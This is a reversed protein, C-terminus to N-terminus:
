LVHLGGLELGQEVAHEAAQGLGDAGVAAGDVFVHTVADHGEPACRHFGGFMGVQGDCRCQFHGRGDLGQICCICGGGGDAHADPQVGADHTHAVHAGVDAAAVGYHSVGHVQAGAQLAQGGNVADGNNGAFGGAGLGGGKHPLLQVGHADFAFVGGDGDEGRQTQGCVGGCRLM